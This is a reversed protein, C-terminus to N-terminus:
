PRCCKPRRACRSITRSITACATACGSPGIIAVSEKHEIAFSIRDVARVALDKNDPHYVKSLSEIVVPASM